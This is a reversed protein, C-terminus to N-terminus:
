GAASVQTTGPPGIPYPVAVHELLMLALDDSFGAAHQEVADLLADLATDVDGQEGRSMAEDIRARPLFVGQDDRAEILGDTYLLLRDGPTWLHRTVEDAPGLGLPM